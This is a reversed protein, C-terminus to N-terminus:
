IFPLSNVRSVRVSISAGVSFITDAETLVISLTGTLMWNMKCLRSQSGCLLEYSVFEGVMHFMILRLDKIM